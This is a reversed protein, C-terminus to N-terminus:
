KGKEGAGFCGEDSHSSEVRSGSTQFAVQSRTSTYHRTNIRFDRKARLGAACHSWDTGAIRLQKNM